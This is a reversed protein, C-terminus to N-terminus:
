DCPVCTISMDEDHSFKSMSVVLFFSCPLGNIEGKVKADKSMIFNLLDKESPAPISVM